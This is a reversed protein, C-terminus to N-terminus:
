LVFDSRRNSSAVFDNMIKERDIQRDKHIFLLALGTM